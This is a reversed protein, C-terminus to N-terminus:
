HLLNRTPKDKRSSRNEPGESQKNLGGIVDFEDGSGQCDNRTDKPDTKKARSCNTRKMVFEKVDGAM